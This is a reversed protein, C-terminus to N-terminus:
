YPSDDDINHIFAVRTKELVDLVRCMFSGRLAPRIGRLFNLFKILETLEPYNALLCCDWNDRHAQYTSDMRSYYKM